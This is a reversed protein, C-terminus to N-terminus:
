IITDVIRQQWTDTSKPQIPFIIRNVYFVLPGQSKLKTRFFSGLVKSHHKLSKKKKRFLECSSCQTDIVYILRSIRGSNILPIKGIVSFGHNQDGFIASKQMFWNDSVINAVTITHIRTCCVHLYM